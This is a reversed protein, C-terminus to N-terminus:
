PKSGDKFLSTYIIVVLMLTMALSEFWTSIPISQYGDTIMQSILIIPGPIFCGVAIVKALNLFSKSRISKKRRIAFYLLGLLGLTVFVLWIWALIRMWDM